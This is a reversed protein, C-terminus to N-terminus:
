RVGELLRLVRVLTGEDCDRSVRVRWRNPSVIEIPHCVPDSKIEPPDPVIRAPVFAPGDGLRGERYAKRWAFLLQTSIGHRRATASALRPASLSEEVIRVKKSESWRRRRGTDVIELRTIQHSDTRIDMGVTLASALM